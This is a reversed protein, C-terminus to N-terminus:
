FEDDEEFMARGVRSNERRMVASWKFGIAIIPILLAICLLIAAIAENRQMFAFFALLATSYTVNRM